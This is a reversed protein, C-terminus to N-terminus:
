IFRGQSESRRRQCSRQQVSRAQRSTSIETFDSRGTLTAARSDKHGQRPRSTSIMEAAGAAGEDVVAVDARGATGTRTSPRTALTEPTQGASVTVTEPM